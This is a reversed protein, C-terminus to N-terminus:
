SLVVMPMAGLTSMRGTGHMAATATRAARTRRLTRGTRPHPVWDRRSGPVTRRHRHRLEHCRDVGDLCRHSPSAAESRLHQPPPGRCVLQQASPHARRQVAHNCKCSAPTTHYIFSEFPMAQWPEIVVAHVHFESLIASSGVESIWTHHSALRATAMCPVTGAAHAANAQTTTQVTKPRFDVFEASGSLRGAM